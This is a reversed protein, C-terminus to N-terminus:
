KNKVTLNELESFLSVSFSFCYYYLLLLLLRSYYTTTTVVEYRCTARTKIFHLNDWDLRLYWISIYTTIPLHQICLHGGFNTAQIQM